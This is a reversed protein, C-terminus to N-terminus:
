RFWVFLVGYLEEAPQLTLKLLQGVFPLGVDQQFYVLGEAASALRVFSDECSSDVSERMVM